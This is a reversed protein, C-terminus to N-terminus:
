EWEESSVESTLCEWLSWPPFSVPYGVELIPELAGRRAEALLRLRFSGQVAREAWQRKSEAM